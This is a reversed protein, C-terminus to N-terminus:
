GKGKFGIIDGRTANPNVLRDNQQVQKAWAHLHQLVDTQSYLKIFNNVKDLFIQKDQDTIEFFPKQKLKRYYLVIYFTDKMVDSLDIQNEKFRTILTGSHELYLDYILNLFECVNYLSTLQPNIYNVFKKMEDKQFDKNDKHKILENGYNLFNKVIVETVYSKFISYETFYTEIIEDDFQNTILNVTRDLQNLIDSVPAKNNVLKSFDILNKQVSNMLMIKLLENQFQKDVIVKDQQRKDPNDVDTVYLNETLTAIGGKPPESYNDTESFIKKFKDFISM